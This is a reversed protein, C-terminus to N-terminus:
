GSLKKAVIENVKRGDAKGRVKPMLIKMVAGIEAATSAQTDAIAQVVLVELEAETLQQPLYDALIELEAKEQAVLDARGGKEFGEISDRRKKASSAVVALCDEDSLERGLEIQKYKLDSKLMRLVSVKIKDGGKMAAIMEDNVKKSLSM